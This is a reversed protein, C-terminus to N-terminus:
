KLEARRAEPLLLAEADWPLKDVKRLLKLQETYNKLLHETFPNKSGLPDPEWNESTMFCFSFTLTWDRRDMATIKEQTRPDVATVYGIPLGDFLFPRKKRALDIFYSGANHLRPLNLEQKAYQLFALLGAKVVREIESGRETRQNDTLGENSWGEEDRFTALFVRFLYNKECPLEALSALFGKFDLGYYKMERRRSVKKFVNTGDIRVYKEKLLSPVHGKGYLHRRIASEAWDTKRYLEYITQPGYEAISQLIDKSPQKLQFLDNAIQKLQTDLNQESPPEKEAPRPGSIM